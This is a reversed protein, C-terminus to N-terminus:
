PAVSMQKISITGDGVTFSLTAGGSGTSAKLSRATSGARERPLLAPYDNAITGTRLIDANIDANFGAPLGVKLDGLALRAEVGAGRWSRTPVDLKISGRGVTVMVSGGTLTLTADSELATVRMAGEVGALRLAGNGTNIELDTAVPVKIRYDIKWPMGLLTKPFRKAVRRMFVKDHTGTTVIRLHDADEDLVFNDVAALLTLDQETSAQWEIDATIEVENRQWGEIAISGQPPGVITITGGYAFRRTEYRTTTRKLVPPSPSIKPSQAAIERVGPAAAFIFVCIVLFYFKRNNRLPYKTIGTRTKRVM